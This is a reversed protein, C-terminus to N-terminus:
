RKLERQIRAQTEREFGDAEGGRFAEGDPKPPESNPCTSRFGWFPHDVLDNRVRTECALCEEMDGVSITEDGNCAKRAM